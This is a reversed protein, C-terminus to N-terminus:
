KTWELVTEELKMGNKAWKKWAANCEDMLDGDHWTTTAASHQNKTQYGTLIDFALPHQSKLHTSSLSMITGEGTVFVVRNSSQVHYARTISPELMCIHAFVVVANKIKYEFSFADENGSRQRIVKIIAYVLTADIENKEDDMADLIMPKTLCPMTKIFAIHCPADFFTVYAEAIRPANLVVERYFLILKNADIRTESQETCVLTSECLTHKRILNFTTKYSGYFLAILDLLHTTVSIHASLDLTYLHSSTM